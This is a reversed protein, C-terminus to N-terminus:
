KWMTYHEELNQRGDELRGGLTDFGRLYHVLLLPKHSTALVPTYYVCVALNDHHIATPINKIYLSFHAPSGMGVEAEGARM